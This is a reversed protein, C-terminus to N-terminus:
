DRFTKSWAFVAQQQERLFAEGDTVTFHLSRASEVFGRLTTPEMTGDDVHEKNTVIAPLLPWNRDRAYVMLDGLHQNIAYRVKSWPVGSEDALDKYSLFREDRAAKLVARLTKDFDLGAGKRRAMEEQAELYYADGTRGQRRYNDIINKLESDNWDAV